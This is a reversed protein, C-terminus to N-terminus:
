PDIKISHTRIFKGFCSFHKKDFLSMNGKYGLGLKSVFLLTILLNGLQPKSVLIFHTRCFLTNKDAQSIRRAKGDFSSRKYHSEENSVVEFIEESLCDKKM